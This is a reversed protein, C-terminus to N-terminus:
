EARLLSENQVKRIKEDQKISQEATFEEPADSDSGSEMWGFVIVQQPRRREAVGVWGRARRDSSWGWGDGHKSSWGM